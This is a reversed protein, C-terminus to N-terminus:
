VHKKFTWKSDATSEYLERKNLNTEKYDCHIFSNYIAIRTYKTNKIISELLDNKNTNFDKCTWDVAGKGTFTHQSNGSRGHSLEWSKPRYGSKQSPYVSYGLENRVDQIYSIHWKVIKDAIDEPIANGSINFESPVFNIKM